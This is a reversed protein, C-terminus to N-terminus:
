RRAALIRRAVAEDARAVMVHVGQLQLQPEQAGADDATVGAKLGNSRLLGAIIEAEIRSGAVAVSVVDVAVGRGTDPQEV